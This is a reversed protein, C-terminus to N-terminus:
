AAIASIHRAAITALLGPAGPLSRILTFVTACPIGSHEAKGTTGAAQMKKQLRAM